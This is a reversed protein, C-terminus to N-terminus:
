NIADDGEGMARLASKQQDIIKNIIMKLNQSSSSREKKITQIQKRM